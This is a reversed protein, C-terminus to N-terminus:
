PEEDLDDDEYDGSDDDVQAGDPDDIDDDDEGDYQLDDDEDGIIEDEPLLDELDDDEFTADCEPCLKHSRIYELDDLDAILEGCYPCEFTFPM